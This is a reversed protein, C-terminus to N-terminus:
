IIVHEITCKSYVFGRFQELLLCYKHENPRVHQKIRQPNKYQGKGFRDMGISPQDHKELGNLTLNKKINM